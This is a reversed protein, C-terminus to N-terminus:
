KKLTCKDDLKHLKSVSSPKFKVAVFVKQYKGSTKADELKDVTLGTFSKLMQVILIEELEM